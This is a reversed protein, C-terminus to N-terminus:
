KKTDTTAIRPKHRGSCLEAHELADRSNQSAGRSRSALESVQSASASVQEIAATISEMRSVADRVDDVAEQTAKELRFEVTITAVGDQVLTYIHKVGQLTAVSNEIKRAVDNELQAPSAGPLAM